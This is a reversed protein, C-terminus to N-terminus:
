ASANINGGFSLEHPTSVEVRPDCRFMAKHLMVGVAWMDAASNAGEGALVEPAMYGETGKVTRRSGDKHREADRERDM